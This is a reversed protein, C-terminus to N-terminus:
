GGVVRTVVVDLAEVRVQLAAGLRAAEEIGLRRAAQHLPQAPQEPAGPELALLDVYQAAHQRGPVLRFLQPSFFTIGAFITSWIVLPKRYHRIRCPFRPMNRVIRSSTALM